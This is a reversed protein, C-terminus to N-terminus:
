WFDSLAESLTLIKTQCCEQLLVDFVTLLTEPESMDVANEAGDEESAANGHTDLEEESEEETGEPVSTCHSMKRFVGHMQEEAEEEVEEEIGEEVEESVTTCVSKKRMLKHSDEERIHLAELRNLLAATEFDLIASDERTLIGVPTPIEEDISSISRSNRGQSVSDVSSRSSRRRMPQDWAYVDPSAQMQALQHEQEYSIWSSDSLRHSSEKHSAAEASLKSTRRTVPKDRLTEPSSIDEDNDDCSHISLWLPNKFPVSEDNIFPSPVPAPYKKPEPKGFARHPTRLAASLLESESLTSHRFAEVYAFNYNLMQSKAYDLSERMHQPIQKKPSPGYVAEKADLDFADIDAFIAQQEKVFSSPVGAWTRRTNQHVIM